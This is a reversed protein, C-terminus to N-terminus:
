DRLLKEFNEKSFYIGAIFKRIDCANRCKDNLFINIYNNNNINNNNITTSPQQNKVLDTLKDIVKELNDIKAHLDTDPIILAVEDSAKCVKSHKWLGSQSKNCKDCVKCQYKPPVITTTVVEPTLQLLHKKTHMHKQLNSKSTTLYKCTMCCFQSSKIESM